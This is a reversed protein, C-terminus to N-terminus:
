MNYISSMKWGIFFDLFDLKHFVVCDLNSTKIAAFQLEVFIETYSFFFDFEDAVFM